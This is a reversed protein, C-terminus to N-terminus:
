QPRHRRLPRRHPEPMALFGPQTPPVGIVPASTLTIQAFDEADIDTAYQNQIVVSSQGALAADSVTCGLSTGDTQCVIGNWGEGLKGIEVTGEM